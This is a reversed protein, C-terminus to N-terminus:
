YMHLLDLTARLAVRPLNRPEENLDGVPTSIIETKNNVGTFDFELLKWTNKANIELKFNEWKYIMEHDDYSFSSFSLPCSHSDMPFNLMHLSCRADITMRVSYLVKGDKHILAMQNPITVDYEQTRKSNRFFTDPIWLQSVVNGHLILTEFTDNYRLREDYWTQYFIIDISYEMDLISIPGLSNVFVEVTVVTPKDTLYPCLIPYIDCLPM